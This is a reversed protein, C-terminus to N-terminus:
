DTSPETWTVTASDPGAFSVEVDSAIYTFCDYDTLPILKVANTAALLLATTFTKRMFKVKLKNRARVAPM